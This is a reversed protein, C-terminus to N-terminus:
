KVVPCPMDRVPSLYTRRAVSPPGLQLAVWSAHPASVQVVLMSPLHGAASAPPGSFQQVAASPSGPLFNQKSSAAVTFRSAARFAAPMLVKTTPIGPVSSYAACSSAKASAPPSTFGLWGGLYKLTSAAPPTAPRVATNELMVVCSMVVQLKWSPDSGGSSPRSLTVMSSTVMACAPASPQSRSVLVLGGVM